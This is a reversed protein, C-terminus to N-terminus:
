HVKSKTGEHKMDLDTLDFGHAIELTHLTKLHLKSWLPLSHIRHCQESNPRPSTYSVHHPAWLGRPRNVRFGKTSFSPASHKLCPWYTSGASAGEPLRNWCKRNEQNDAEQGPNQASGEMLATGGQPSAQAFFLLTPSHTLSPCLSFGFETHKVWLAAEGPPDCTVQRDSLSLFLSFSLPLTLALSALHLCIPHHVSIQLM